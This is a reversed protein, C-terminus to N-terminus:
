PIEESVAIEVSPEGYMKKIHLSVIQADDQYVIGNMGDLVAKASNDIDPKKIPLELGQRCAESRKKSYSAPIPLRIYLYVSVPTELPKEPGMAIRAAERVKDEYDKTTKPTYTSIFSGRRVFRPRGKPVPTGYVIFNTSFM